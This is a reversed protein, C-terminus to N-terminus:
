IRIGYDIYSLEYWKVDIELPSLREGIRDIHNAINQTPQQSDMCSFLVIDPKTREAIEAIADFDNRGFLKMSQKVEGIIFKGDQVCAIDIEAVKDLRESLEDRPEALLNLNSTFLFSTRSEELLQALVLIVPMTGHLAHAAHILENLRYHWTLEPHLPFQIRCGQCTLHQNIDGVHYWSVIGCSPCRPKVGIQIINRKALQALRNKIDEPRFGFAIIDEESQDDALTVSEMYRKRWHEAEQVFDDFPFEKQKSDLKKAENVALRAISEIALQNEVTLPGLRGIEKSLRNAVAKHAHQEARPNKSLIDFMERWYPNSLVYNAFTLNGFLDLVGQLYKGKDSIEVSYYRKDAVQTRPDGHRYVSIWVRRSLSAVM